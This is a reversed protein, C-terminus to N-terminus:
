GDIEWPSSLTKTVKKECFKCTFADPLRLHTCLQMHAWRKMSIRRTEQTYNNTIHTWMERRTTGDRSSLVCSVNHFIFKSLIAIKNLYKPSWYLSAKSPDGADGWDTSHSAARIQSKFSSRPETQMCGGPPPLAASAIDTTSLEPM